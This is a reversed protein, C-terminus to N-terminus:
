RAEFNAGLEWSGVCAGLKSAVPLRVEMDDNAHGTAVLIIEYEREAVQSGFKDPQAHMDLGTVWFVAVAAM